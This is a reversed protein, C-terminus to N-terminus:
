GERKTGFLWACINGDPKEGSPPLSLVFCYVVKEDGSYEAYRRGYCRVARGNMMPPPSCSEATFIPAWGRSRKVTKYWKRGSSSLFFYWKIDPDTDVPIWKGDSNYADLDDILFEDDFILKMEGKWRSTKGYKGTGAALQPKKADNKKPKLCRQWFRKANAAVTRLPCTIQRTGNPRGERTLTTESGATAADTKADYDFKETEKRIEKRMGYNTFRSVFRNLSFGRHYSPAEDLGKKEWRQEEWAVATTDSGWQSSPITYPPPMSAPAASGM